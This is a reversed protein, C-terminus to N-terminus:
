CFSASNLIAGNFFGHRDKRLAADGTAPVRDVKAAGPEFGHAAGSRRLGMAVRRYAYIKRGPGTACLDMDVICKKSAVAVLLYRYRAV